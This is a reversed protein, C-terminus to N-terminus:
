LIRIERQKDTIDGKEDPRLVQVEYGVAGDIRGWYLVPHGVAPNNATYHMTVVPKESSSVVVKAKPMEKSPQVISPHVRVATTLPLTTEKAMATSGLMMSFFVALSILSTHKM